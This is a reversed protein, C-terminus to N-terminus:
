SSYISPMAKPHSPCDMQFSISGHAAFKEEFWAAFTAFSERGLRFGFAAKRTTWLSL